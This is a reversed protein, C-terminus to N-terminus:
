LLLEFLLAAGDPTTIHGQNKFGVKEYCRQAQLNDPAVDMIVRNINSKNRFREEIFQKLVRTGLGQNLLNEEAIFMDLGITNPDIGPWWGRGVRSAFYIHVYGIPKQNLSIVYPFVYDSALYREYKEQHDQYSKPALGGWRKALFPQCLWRYILDIDKRTLAQISIHEKSEM